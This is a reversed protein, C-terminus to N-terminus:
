IAFVELRLNPREIVLEEQRNGPAEDLVDLPVRHLDGFLAGGTSPTTLVRSVADRLDKASVFGSETTGASSKFQWCWLRYERIHDENRPESDVNPLIEVSDRHQENIRHALKQAYPALDMLLDKTEEYFCAEWPASGTKSQVFQRIASLICAHLEGSFRDFSIIEKAM